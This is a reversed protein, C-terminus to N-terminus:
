RRLGRVEADITLDECEEFRLTIDVTEGDELSRVDYLMIHLGGPKFSVSKGAPLDVRKVERMKMLGDEFRHTHLEVRDAIDTEASVLTCASDGNNRVEFFAATITRGPPMARVYADSVEIANTEAAAAVTSGMCLVAALLAKM